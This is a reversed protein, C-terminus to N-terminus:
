HNLGRLCGNCYVVSHWDHGVCCPREASPRLRLTRRKCVVHLTTGDIVGCSPLAANLPLEIGDLILVLNAAPETNELMELVTQVTTCSPLDLVRLTPANSDDASLIKAFIRLSM